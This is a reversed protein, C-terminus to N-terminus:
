WGMKRMHAIAEKYMRNLFRIDHIDTGRRRMTINQLAQKYQYGTAGFNYRYRLYYDVLSHKRAQKRRQKKTRYYPM